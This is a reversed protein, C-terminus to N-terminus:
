SGVSLGLLGEGEGAANGLFLTMKHQPIRDSFHTVLEVVGRLRFGVDAFLYLDNALKLQLAVGNMDVADFRQRSRRIKQRLARRTRRLYPPDNKTVRRIQRLNLGSARSPRGGHRM